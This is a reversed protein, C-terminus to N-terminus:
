LVSAVLTFVVLIGVLIFGYKLPRGLNLSKKETYKRQFVVRGTVPDVTKEMRYGSGVQELLEKVSSLFSVTLIILISIILFIIFNRDHLNVAPLMTYFVLFILAAAIVFKILVSVFRKM